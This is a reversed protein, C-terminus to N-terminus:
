SRPPTPGFLGRAILRYVVIAAVITGAIVFVLNRMRWYMRDISANMVVQLNQAMMQQQGAVTTNLQTVTSDRLSSVQTTAQALVSNRQTSVLANLQDMLQGQEIPIQERFREISDAVRSTSDTFRATSGSVVAVNDLLRVMQPNSLMMSYLLDTQWSLLVPLHQAYFFVREALIRSQKVQQVAPDLGNFPDLKVVSLVGNALATVNLTNANNSENQFYDMLRAGAVFHQDPNEAVWQDALTHLQAIQDPTLYEACIKWISADQIKLVATIRAAEDQGFMQAAWPRGSLERTIRAMIAMDMMGAVPNPNVANGLAGMATFLRCRQAMVRGESTTASTEANAYAEGIATMYRDAFGMIENQVREPEITQSGGGAAEGDLSQGSGHSSACGSILLLLLSCFGLTFFLRFKM